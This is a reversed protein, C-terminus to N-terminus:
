FNGKDLGRKHTHESTFRKCGSCQWITKDIWEDSKHLYITLPAFCHECRHGFALSDAISLSFLLILAWGVGFLYRRVKAPIPIYGQWVNM